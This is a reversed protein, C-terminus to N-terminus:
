QGMERHALLENVTVLDLGRARLGEVIPRIARRTPEGSDYWPHLLIISGKHAHELVDAVIANTNGVIKPDSEPEIDWTISTRGTRALYLPLGFLKKGYPPRFVIERQYGAARIQADTQEIERTYFGSTNFVMRTHTYSHNGLQHGAAVLQRGSEPSAALSEGVVFFTARVNLDALETVLPEVRSAIPGDDFTLAVLPEHLDV